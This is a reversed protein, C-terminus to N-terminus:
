EPLPKDKTEPAFWVAIVGLLFVSSLVVGALRFPRNPDEVTAYDTPGMPDSFKWGFLQGFYDRLKQPDKGMVEFHVVSQAM